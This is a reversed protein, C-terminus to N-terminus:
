PTSWTRRPSPRATTGCSAKACTSRSRRGDGGLQWEVALHGEVNTHPPDGFPDKIMLNNYVNNSITISSARASPRTPYPPILGTASNTTQSGLVVTGGYQPETKPEM